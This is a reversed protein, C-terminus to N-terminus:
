KSKRAKKTRQGRLIFNHTRIQFRMHSQDLQMYPSLYVVPKISKSGLLAFCKCGWIRGTTILSWHWLYFTSLFIVFRLFEFALWAHMSITCTIEASIVPSKTTTVCRHMCLNTCPRLLIVSVSSCRCQNCLGLEVTARHLELGCISLNRQWCCIWHIPEERSSRANSIPVPIICAFVHCNEYIAKSRRRRRKWKAKDLWNTGGMTWERWCLSWVKKCWIALVLFLRLKYGVSDGWLTM